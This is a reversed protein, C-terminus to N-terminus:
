QTSGVHAVAVALRQVASEIKTRREIALSTKRRPLHL